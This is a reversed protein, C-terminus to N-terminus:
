KVNNQKINQYKYKIIDIQTETNNKASQMRLFLRKIFASITNYQITNYQITNYQITYYQITNYQITNYYLFFRNLFNMTMGNQNILIQM